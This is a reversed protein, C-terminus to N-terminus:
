LFEFSLKILLWQMYYGIREEPMGLLSESIDNEKEGCSLEILKKKLDKLQIVEQKLALIDMMIILIM